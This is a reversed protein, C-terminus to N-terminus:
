WLNGIVRRYYLTHGSMGLRRIEIVDGIKVDTGEDRLVLLAPDSEMIWPLQSLSVQERNLVEISEEESLLRHESALYHASM